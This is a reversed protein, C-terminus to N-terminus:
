NKGIKFIEIAKEAESNDVSKIHRLAKYISNANVGKAKLLGLMFNNEKDKGLFIFQDIKEPDGEYILDIKYGKNRIKLLEKYPEGYLIDQLKDFEKEKKELPYDNKYLLINLKKISKIDKRTQPDLKEVDFKVINAPLNVSLFDPSESAQVWYNELNDKQCSFLTTLTLLILIKNIAKM